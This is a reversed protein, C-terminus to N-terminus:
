RASNNLDAQHAAQQLLRVTQTSVPLPSGGVVAQAPLNRADHGTIREYMVLAALYTGLPSPHYGDSSYLALNPDVAWAALWAEGAPMFVGNVATAAAQYSARCADFFGFRTVDPWPMFLATRAGSARIYPDFMKTWLVLSDRNVDVTSPGQQLIVYEWGGAHIASLASGSNLHDILAFDSATVSGAVITDGVSSALQAVTGPLDNVATLSNGIFLVHHGGAPIPSLAGEASKCSACAVAATVIFTIFLPRM